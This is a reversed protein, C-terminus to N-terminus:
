LLVKVWVDSGTDSREQVDDLKGVSEVSRSHFDDGSTPVVPVFDAHIESNGNVTETVSLINMVARSKEYINKTLKQINM